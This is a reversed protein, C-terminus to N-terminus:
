LFTLSLNKLKEAGIRSASKVEGLGFAPTIKGVQSNGEGVLFLCKIVEQQILSGASPISDQRGGRYSFVEEERFLTDWKSAAELNPPVSEWLSRLFLGIVTLSNLETRSIRPSSSRDPSAQHNLPHRMETEAAADRM